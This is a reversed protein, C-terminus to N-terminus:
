FGRADQELRALNTQVANRLALFVSGEYWTMKTDNVLETLATDLRRYARYFRGQTLKGGHMLANFTYPSLAALDMAAAYKVATQAKSPDLKLKAFVSAGTMLGSAKVWERADCEVEDCVDYAEDALSHSLDGEHYGAVVDAHVEKPTKLKEALLEAKVCERKFDMACLVVQQVTDAVHEDVSGDIFLGLALAYLKEAHVVLDETNKLLIDGGQLPFLSVGVGLQAAHQEATETSGFCAVDARHDLMLMEAIATCLLPCNTNVTTTNM